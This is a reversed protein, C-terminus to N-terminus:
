SKTPGGDILLTQAAVVAPLDPWSRELLTIKHESQDLSCGALVLERGRSFAGEDDASSLAVVGVVQDVSLLGSCALPVVRAFLRFAWPVCIKESSKVTSATHVM